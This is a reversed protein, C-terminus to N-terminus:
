MILSTIGHWGASWSYTSLIDAKLTHKFLHLSSCTKLNEAMNNWVSPGSFHINFKGYNTRVQDIYYTSKSALRTNYGHKSSILSFFSDFAKPLLNHHFQFMFLATHFTVLDMFKILGLQFFLPSSHADRNSFTITRVAKKHLVVIPNLTTAYTHDWVILIVGSM